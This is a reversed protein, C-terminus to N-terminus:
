LVPNWTACSNTTACPAFLMSHRLCHIVALRARFHDSDESVVHWVGFEVRHLYLGIQMAVHLTLLIVKIELSHFVEVFDIVHGLSIGQRTLLMARSPPLVTGSLRSLDTSGWRRTYLHTSPLVSPLIRPLRVRATENGRLSKLTSIRLHDLCSTWLV